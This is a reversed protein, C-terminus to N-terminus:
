LVWRGVKYFPDKDCSVCPSIPLKDTGSGTYASEDMSSSTTCGILSLSLVAILALKAALIRITTTIMDQM